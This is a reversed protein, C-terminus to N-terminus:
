FYTEFDSNKSFCGLLENSEEYMKDQISKDVSIGYLANSYRVVSRNILQSNQVM